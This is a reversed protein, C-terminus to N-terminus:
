RRRRPQDVHLEQWGSDCYAHRGRDTGSGTEAWRTTPSFTNSPQRSARQQSGSRMAPITLGSVALGADRTDVEPLRSLGTRVEARRKTTVYGLRMQASRGVNLGFDIRGGLDIFQYTAIRDGDIFLDESARIAFIEPEVFYRQTIDFPQYFSSTLQTEYGAQVNNRWQGGRSNLWRRVHQVGLQFNHNGGGTALM